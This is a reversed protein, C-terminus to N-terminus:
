KLVVETDLISVKMGNFAGPVPKSLIQTGDALGKIIATNEKFHIAEIKQLQLQGGQITFLKNNEVLLKRDVEYSDEEAQAPVDAELYMGEKLDKGKVQIFVKFTQSSPDIIGNVRSVKGTWSNTKEVNRLAVTKGIKLLDAFSPSVTVELEFIGPSIFEGLKQGARILAGKRVLSETLIGYYPAYIAYKSLREEMNKINYYSTHINKGAIFLKEQESDAEPFPALTKQVDFNNIYDKWKQFATPYDFKLDPLFMVLQNYLASKQSRMNASHEQSNIRILTAGKKYQEGPLFDRGTDEFIRQVEAFLEVRHKAKLNGSTSISIPTAGNKVTQVYVNTVLKNEAPKPVEKGKALNQKGFYAGVVLLIGVLSIIIKRLNM